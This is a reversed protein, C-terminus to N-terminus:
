KRSTKGSKGRKRPRLRMDGVYKIGHEDGDYMVDSFCPREAISNIEDANLLALREPSIPEGEKTKAKQNKGEVGCHWARPMFPYLGHYGGHEIIRKVLGAQEAQLSPIASNPYKKAVYGIPHLYYSVNRHRTIERVAWLPYSVGLSQFRDDKYAAAPMDRVPGIPREQNLCASAFFADPATMWIERHWEFYGPNCYIDDEIMNIHTAGVQEALALASAYGELMNYTNGVFGHPKRLIVEGQRGQMFEQIIPICSQDGRDVSFLWYRPQSRCAALRKLCQELYHPRNWCPIFALQNIKREM